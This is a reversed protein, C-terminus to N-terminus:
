EEPEDSLREFSTPSEMVLSRWELKIEGTCKVLKYEAHAQTAEHYDAPVLDVRVKRMHGEVTGHITARGGAQSNDSELKVIIGEVETVEPPAMAKLRASAREIVSMSERPLRILSPVDSAPPRALAWALRVEVDVGEIGGSLGLVADCLNASVGLSVVDAFPDTEDSTSENEAAQKLANLSHALTSTVRRAFPQEPCLYAMSPEPPQVPPPVESIVTIVYSGHETQGFRVDKAMYGSADSPKRSSYYSKPNVAACAAALMMEKTYEFGALGEDIPVTGPEAGASLLPVRVVDSAGLQIDRAIEGPPRGHAAGLTELAEILRVEYDRLASNTPLLIEFESDGDGKLTWVSGRAYVTRTMQWGFARMYAALNFPSVGRPLEPRLYKTM